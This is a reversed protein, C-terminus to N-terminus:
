DPPPRTRFPSQVTWSSSGLPNQGATVAPSSPRGFAFAQTISKLYLSATTTTTPPPPGKITQSYGKVWSLRTALLGWTRPGAPCHLSQRSLPYSQLGSPTKKKQPPTPPSTQAQTCIFLSKNHYHTRKERLCRRDKDGFGGLRKFSLIKIRVPREAVPVLQPYNGPPGFPWCSDWEAEEIQAWLFCSFLSLCAKHTQPHPSWVTHDTLM